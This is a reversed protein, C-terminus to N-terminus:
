VAPATLSRPAAAGRGPVQTYGPPYGMLWGIFEPNIMYSRGPNMMDNPSTTQPFSTSTEFLIVNALNRTCRGLFPKCQTWNHKLPTPWSQRTVTEEGNAIQLDLVRAQRYAFYRSPHRPTKEPDAGVLLTNYAMVVCAPIVSSGFFGCLAKFLKYRGDRLLVREVPESQWNFQQARCLKLDNRGRCALCFWRRRQHLAGMERGSVITDHVTFGRDSFLKKLTDFGRTRMFPSNELLVYKVCDCEDLLRFVHSILGSQPGDLGKGAPNAVSVDTCPFGACILQPQEALDTMHMTTIDELIPAKDIRRRQMNNMLIARCTPDIDCYGVTRAVSHLAYSFGGIGSFLDLM